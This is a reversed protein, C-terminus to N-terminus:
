KFFGQLNDNLNNIIDILNRDVKTALIQAYVFCDKTTGQREFKWNNYPADSEILLKELPLLHVCKSIKSQQQILGGIGLYFGLQILQQAMIESNNYAHIIGLNPLMFNIKKIIQLLENYAQVCHVIIPLNNTKALKFQATFYEIQLAFNAKLKDLGIEGIFDPKFKVIAEQLAQMSVSLSKKSDIEWPHIGFGIKVNNYKNRISVLTDIDDLTISPIVTLNFTPNNRFAEQHCHSDYLM